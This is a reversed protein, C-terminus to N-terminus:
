PHVAKVFDEVGRSNLVEDRTLWGRRAMSVGYTLNALAGTSHADTSVIFRIGRERALRIWRPELDLRRPDGNIEIACHAAAIADLVDELRCDFPPRSPILRGLPHGWVKFLPLNIARLLRDTMQASDMKHRTHISAIIIDFRELLYDPYDLDGSALIDSEIGKLLKIEVREQVRDIEDWQALLRDISLGHAYNASQSHDTITLYSMGMAQAALAMGEISNRGDSYETHCHTMGRIDSVTLLTNLDGTGAAEVEGQDERLEPPIYQLGLHRYIEGEDAALKDGACPTPSLEQLKALHDPSGTQRHLAVTYEDPPVIILEAHFGEAMRALCRSEVLVETHALAPIRLFHDMVAKPNESAVVICIQRIIEHRRRLTGAAAAEIVASCIRLYRLIREAQADAHNLLLFNKERAEFKDIAALLAAQSKAGFGKIKSVLNEECAAKLDGISEVGLRDHLSTIKKLSLGPIESLEIAGPPLEERLRQLMFCEGSDYIEQILSALTDGIGPIEKLRQKKIMADFDGQLNELAAAARGFALTKFRNEAKVQLLRAITRLDNAIEFRDKM